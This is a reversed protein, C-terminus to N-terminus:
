RPNGITLTVGARLSLNTRSGAPGDFIRSFNPTVFASLRQSIQRRYTASAGFLETTNDDLGFGVDIAQDNRSYRVSAAVTEIDSLPRSYGASVFTVASIGAFGTPRANRGATLCLSGELLRDCYAAEAALYYRTDKGEPGLDIRAVSVGLRGNVSATENLRWQAGVTPTLIIGDGIQQDLYSVMSGSLQANVSLTESLTRGYQLMASNNVFDEGVEGDYFQARSNVGLSISDTPTLAYAGTIGGNVAYSRTRLGAVTLDIITPDPFSNEPGLVSPESFLVDQAASRSTQASVNASVNLREDLRRTVAGNLRVTENSGIRGPYYSYRLTGGITAVSVEDSITISPDVQLFISGATSGNDVTDGELFPDTEVSAGVSIDVRKEVQQAFCTQGTLSLAVVATATLFRVRGASVTAPEYCKRPATDNMM